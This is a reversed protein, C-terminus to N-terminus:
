RIIINKADKKRIALSFDKIFVQMPDGLPALKQVKIVDGIDVGMDILRSREKGESRIESITGQQGAKVESLNM